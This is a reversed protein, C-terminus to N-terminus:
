HFNMRWRVFEASMVGPLAEICSALGGAADFPLHSVTLEYRHLAGTKNVALSALEAGSTAIMRLVAITVEVRPSAAIVFQCLAPGTLLMDHLEITEREIQTM